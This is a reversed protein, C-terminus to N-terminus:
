KKAKKMILTAFLKVFERDKECIEKMKEIQDERWQFVGGSIYNIIKSKYDDFTTLIRINGWQSKTINSFWKGYKEVAEKVELILKSENQKQQQKMKLYKILSSDSDLKHEERASYKTLNIKKNFLFEPNVIVEGFGESLFGGVGKSIDKLIDKSVNKLVVVSGKDIVCRQTDEKRVLNYPVYEYHRIHNHEYVINEKTLNKHFNVVDYTPNGNKDFLAVRSKIYIFDYNDKSENYNNFSEFDCKSVEIVGYESRKSKGVYHEGVITNLILKKDHESISEDIDIEFYFESGKPISKFGFMASKKSRGNAYDRASKQSYDYEIEVFQYDKNFYGKRIQKFQNEKFDEKKLKWWNYINKKNLKEHYYMLPIKISSKSNIVINGDKFKVKGSFFVDFPNDFKDYEKAVVGLFVSGPIYDLYRINGETNSSAIFILNSLAKAKFKM